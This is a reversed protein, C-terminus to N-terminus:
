RKRLSEMLLAVNQELIDKNKFAKYHAHTGYITSFIFTTFKAPDVTTQGQEKAQTLIKQVLPQLQKYFSVIQEQIKEDKHSIVLLTKVLLCGNHLTNSLVEVIVLNLFKEISKIPDEKGELIEKVTKLSNATYMEIVAKFIGEKNGYASYLSGPKLGTVAVIDQISTSEYGKKWFLNMAKTLVEQPNYEISRAM